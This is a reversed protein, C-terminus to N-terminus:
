PMHKSSGPSGRLRSTLPHVDVTVSRNVHHLTRDVVLHLMARVPDPEDADGAVLVMAARPAGRVYQEFRVGDPLQVDAISLL